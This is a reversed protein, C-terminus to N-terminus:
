CVTVWQTGGSSSTVPVVRCKPPRAPVFNGRMQRKSLVIWTASFGKRHGHHLGNPHTKPRATFAHEGDALLVRGRITGDPAVSEISVENKSARLTRPSIGDWRGRFWRAVTADRKLTGDCVYVRLRRGDLSLAIFARTGDVKGARVNPLPDLKLRETAGAPAAFLLLSFLAISLMRAM